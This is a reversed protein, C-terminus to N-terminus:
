VTGKGYFDGCDEEIGAAIDLILGCYISIGGSVQFIREYIRNRSNRYCIRWIASFRIKESIQLIRIEDTALNGNELYLEICRGAMMLIYTNLLNHLPYKKQLKKQMEKKSLYLLFIRNTGMIEMGNGYACVLRFTEDMFFGLISDAKEYISDYLLSNLFCGLLHDFAATFESNMLIYDAMASFILPYNEEEKRTFWLFNRRGDRKRPFMSGPQRICAKEESM